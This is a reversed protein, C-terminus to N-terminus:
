SYLLVYYDVGNVNLIPAFQGTNTRAAVVGMGPFTVRQTGGNLTVTVTGSSNRVDRVANGGGDVSDVAVPVGSANFIEATGAGSKNGANWVLSGDVDIVVFSDGLIVTRAGDSRIVNLAVNFFGTGSTNLEAIIFDDLGLAPLPVATHQFTSPSSLKWYVFQQTTSGSPILYQIGQYTLIGSTWHLTTPGSTISFTFGALYLTSNPGIGLAVPPLPPGIQLWGGAAVSYRFPVTAYPPIYLVTTGSLGLGSNTLIRADQLAITNAGVNIIEVFQGDQGPAISPTSTLTVTAGSTNDLRLWSGTPIIQFTAASFYQIEPLEYFDTRRTLERIALSDISTNGLQDQKLGSLASLGKELKQIDSAIQIIANAVVDGGNGALASRLLPAYGAINSSM